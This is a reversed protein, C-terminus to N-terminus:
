RPLVDTRKVLGSGLDPGSAASEPGDLIQNARQIGDQLYKYASNGWANGPNTGSPASTNTSNADVHVITQSQAMASPSAIFTLAAFLVAAILILFSLHKCM